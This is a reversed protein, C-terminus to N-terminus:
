GSHTVPARIRMVSRDGSAQETTIRTIRANVGDIVVSKIVQSLKRSKPELQLQWHDQRASFKTWYNFELAKRDGRLLARYAGVISSVEPAMDLSITRKRGQADVLTIRDGNLTFRQHIPATVKKELFDPRRYILSGHLILPKTLIAIHRTETFPVDVSRVAALDQLVRNFSIAADAAQARGALACWALLAICAAIHLARPRAFPRRTAPGSIM